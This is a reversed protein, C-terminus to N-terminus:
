GVLQPRLAEMGTKMAEAAILVEPIFFEGDRFRRGVETMGALLGDQLVAKAPGSDSLAQEVLEPAQQEDGDIVAQVIESLVSM